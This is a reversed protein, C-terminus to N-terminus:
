LAFLLRHRRSIQAADETAGRLALFSVCIQCLTAFEFGINIFHLVL